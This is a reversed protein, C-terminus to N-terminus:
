NENEFVDEDGEADLEGELMRELKMMEQKTKM